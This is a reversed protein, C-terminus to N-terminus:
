IIEERDKETGARKWRGQSGKLNIIEDGKIIITLHQIHGKILDGLYVIPQSTLTSWRIFLLSMEITLKDPVPADAPMHVCM